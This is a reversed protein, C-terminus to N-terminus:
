ATENIVSEFNPSVIWNQLKHVYFTIDWIFFQSSEGFRYECMLLFNRVYM